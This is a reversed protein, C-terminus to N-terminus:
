ICYSCEGGNSLEFCSLCSFSSQGKVRKSYDEQYLNWDWVKPQRMFGNFEDPYEVFVNAPNRKNLTLAFIKDAVHKPCPMCEFKHGRPIIVGHDDLEIGLYADVLDSLKLHQIQLEASPASQQEDIDNLM